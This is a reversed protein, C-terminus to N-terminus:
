KKSNIINKIIINGIQGRIDLTNIKTNYRTPHVRNSLFVYTFGYEPDAWAFTGTYGAHGFARDSSLAPSNRTDPNFDRKDFALGRRNKEEAFQYSTFARIVDSHIYRQGGYHGEQLYMQMLKSVDNVNGFLGAHGSIGGLMAAGEDHVYRQLLQVRFISDYETPIIRFKSKRNYVNFGLSSCGMSQYTDGVFTPFNVGTLYQVMEPYFYYHLDSYLYHGPSEVPAQKIQQFIHDTYNHNLYLSDAVPVSFISSYRHSFINPKWTRSGSHLVENWFTPDKEVTAAYHVIKKPKKGFLRKFFGPKKIEVVLRDEWEPHQIIAKQLTATTDIAYKWFAIWAKLGARHTLLDRMTREGAGSGRLSPVYESFRGDIDMKDMSVLQMVALASAAIKTISALDYVDTTKIRFEDNQVTKTQTTAQIAAQNDMAMDLFQVSKSTQIVKSPLAPEYTPYGFAKSYIVKGDKAVQLVCGPYAKQELGLTLLSDLERYLEIRDMGALEPVSYSLRDIAQWHVGIGQRFAENIDVPFIGRAPLAGFLIQPAIEETYTNLQYGMVLSKCTALEPIKDLIFPNGLITLVVQKMESLRQLIKTNQSTLGYKRGPRIDVFQGAALVVDYGVLANMVSDIEADTADHKLAYFDNAVYNDVMRGFDTQTQTGISLVAFKRKLNIIPLLNLDNKLCTIANQAVLHNLIDAEISQLDNYLGEVKAAQYHDLGAWSKAKLIKKVKADISAIPIRGSIIADKIARIAGPVDMFTELIDNGALLAQVMAENNPYNKVAGQMDMADTFTLGQFRLEEQLLHTVIEKSFTSAMGKQPELAPVNLHATMVGSLGEQILKKFPYLEVNELRNRNHLILPLDFHSDVDTDGHGPFHKATSIVHHSQIGRMIAIGNRAVIDKDSGFSRFNIVPNKPNNNVDVVPAFNIHVGIRNCQRGIEKGIRTVLEADFPMAATMINYPFNDTNELRMGLGWEFDQGILLPVESLQQLENTIRVQVEPNGAFFVIGGIKYEKVWHRLQEVDHPKGSYNGRPMLLQGIKQDLTLGAFVSDVWQHNYDELFAPGKQGYGHIFILSFLFIFLSQFSNM